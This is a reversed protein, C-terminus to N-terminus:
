GREEAARRRRDAAIRGAITELADLSALDGRTLGSQGNRLAARYYADILHLRTEAVLDAEAKEAQAREQQEVAADAESAADARKLAEGLDLATM